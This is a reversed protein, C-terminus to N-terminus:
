TRIRTPVKGLLLSSKCSNCQWIDVYYKRGRGQSSPCLCCFQNMKTWILTITLATTSPLVREELLSRYYVKVRTQFNSTLGMSISYESSKCLHPTSVQSVVTVHYLLFNVVLGELLREILSYLVDSIVGLWFM